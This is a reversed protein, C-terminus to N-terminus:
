YAKVRGELVFNYIIAIELVANVSSESRISHSHVFVHRHKRHTDDTVVFGNSPILSTLQHDGKM